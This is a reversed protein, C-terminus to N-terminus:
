KNRNIEKVIIQKGKNIRSNFMHPNNYNFMILSFLKQNYIQIEKISNVLNIQILNKM